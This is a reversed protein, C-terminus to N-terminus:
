VLRKVRSSNREQETKNEYDEKFFPDQPSDREPEFQFDLVTVSSNDM